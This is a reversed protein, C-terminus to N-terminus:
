RAGTATQYVQELMAKHEAYEPKGSKMERDYRNRFERHAKEQESANKNWRAVAADIVYGFLHDPQLKMLSDAQAQAATSDGVHLQIMAVHYRADADITDLMGYASLAMPTFREVTAQDGSQAAAIVRDYLRIFRERPTMKSIDPPIGDAATPDPGPEAATLPAPARPQRLVLAVLVILFAGGLVWPAATAIPIKGAVRPTSGTSAGIPAGCDACFRSGTKSNRGCARCTVGDGTGCQHCFPGALPTGCTPCNGRAETTPKTGAM